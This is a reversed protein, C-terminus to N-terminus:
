KVFKRGALDEYLDPYKDKIEDITKAKKVFRTQADPYDGGDGYVRAFRSKFEALSLQYAGGGSVGNKGGNQVDKGYYPSLKWGRLSAQWDIIRGFRDLWREGKRRYYFKEAEVESVGVTPDAALAKVQELTPIEASDSDGYKSLSNNNTGKPVDTETDAENAENKSAFCANAENAEIQKAKGRSAGSKLGGIRGAESRKKCVAKFNEADRKFTELMDTFWARLIPNSFEFHRGEVHASIAKMMELCSEAPLEAIAKLMNGYLIISTKDRAM